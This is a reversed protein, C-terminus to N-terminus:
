IFAKRITEEHGGMFLNAYPSAGKTRLAIGVLQLFHRDMFSLNNNKLITELLVGITQPSPANPPITNAHLEM